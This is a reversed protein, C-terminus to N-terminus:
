RKGGAPKTVPGCLRVYCIRHGVMKASLSPLGRGATSHHWPKSPFASSSSPRGQGSSLVVHPRHQGGNYVLVLDELRKAFSVM